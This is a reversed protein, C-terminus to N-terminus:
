GALGCSLQRALYDSVARLDDIEGRLMRQLASGGDFEDAANPLKVWADAQEPEPFLQQLAAYINLLYSVRELTGDDLGFEVGRHTWSDFVDAAVALLRCCDCAELGWADAIRLVTKVAIRATSVSHVDVSSAPPFAPRTSM